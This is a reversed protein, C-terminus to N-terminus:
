TTAEKRLGLNKIVDEVSKFDSTNRKREATHLQEVQKNEKLKPANQAQVTAIMETIRSDTRRNEIERKNIASLCQRFQARMNTEQESPAECITQWGGMAIVAKGVEDPLSSIAEDARAYGYYRIAKKVQGWGVESDVLNTQLVNSYYEKITSLTPAYRENDAMKSLALSMIKWDLDKVKKFWWELMINNSLDFGSKPWFSDIMTFMKVMEEKTMHEGRAIQGNWLM